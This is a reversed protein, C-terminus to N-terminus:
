KRQDEDEAGKAVQLLWICVGITLMAFVGACIGSWYYSWCPGM